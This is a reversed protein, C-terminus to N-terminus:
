TERTHLACNGAISLPYYYLAGASAAACCLAGPTLGTAELPRVKALTASHQM